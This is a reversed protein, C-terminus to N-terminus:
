LLERIDLGLEDLTEVEVEERVPDLWLEDPVDVCLEFIELLVKEVVEFGLANSEEELWREGAM